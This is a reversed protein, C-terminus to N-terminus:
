PRPELRDHVDGLVVWLYRCLKETQTLVDNSTVVDWESQM